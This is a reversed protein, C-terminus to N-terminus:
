LSDSRIEPCNRHLPSTIDKLVKNKTDKAIKYGNQVGTGRISKTPRHLERKKAFYFIISSKVGIHTSFCPSNLHHVCVTKFHSFCDKEQKWHVTTKFFSSLSLFFQAIKAAIRKEIQTTSTTKLLDL